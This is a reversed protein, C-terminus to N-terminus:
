VEFFLYEVSFSYKKQSFIFRILFISTYVSKNTQHFSKILTVKISDPSIHYSHTHTHEQINLFEVFCFLKRLQRFILLSLSQRSKKAADITTQKNILSFNLLWRKLAFFTSMLFSSFEYLFEHMQHHLNNAVSQSVSFLFALLLNNFLAFITIEQRHCNNVYVNRGIPLQHIRQFSFIIQKEM